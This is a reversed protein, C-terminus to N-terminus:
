PRVWNSDRYVSARPDFETLADLDLAPLPALGRQAADSWREPKTEAAAALPAAGALAPDLALEARVLKALQAETLPRPRCAALLEEHPLIAALPGTLAARVAPREAISKAASGKGQRALRVAQVVEAAAESGSTADGSAAAHDPTDALVSADHAPDYLYVAARFRREEEPSRALPVLGLLSSHRLRTDGLTAAIAYLRIAADRAEPDRRKEALEEAYERYLQPEDPTLEALREPNVTVILEDIEERPVATERWAKGVQHRIVVQTEDERLLYGMLPTSSGKPLVVVANAAYTWPGAVFAILSVVPLGFRCVSRLVNRSHRLCCPSCM